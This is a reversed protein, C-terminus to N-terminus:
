SSPLRFSAQLHQVFNSDRAASQAYQDPIWSLLHVAGGTLLDFRM